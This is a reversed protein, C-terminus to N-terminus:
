KSNNKKIYEFSYELNKSYSSSYSYLFVNFLLMLFSQRKQYMKQYLDHNEEFLNLRTKFVSKM